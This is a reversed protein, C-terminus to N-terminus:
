DTTKSENYKRFAEEYFLETGWWDPPYFGSNQGEDQMQEIIEAIRKIDSVTLALDKEAQEYGDRFEDYLKVNEPTIEQLAYKKIAAQEARKSM